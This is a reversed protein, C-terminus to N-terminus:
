CFMWKALAMWLGGGMLFGMAFGFRWIQKEMRSLKHKSTHKM